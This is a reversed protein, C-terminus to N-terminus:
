RGGDASSGAEAGISGDGVERSELWTRWEAPELSLLNAFLRYAGPVGAPLQRFFALGTYMYLGEGLPAVLLSGHLPEEGPDSMALVPVFPDAWTHFFYLGREQIWGEFDADTIRNPDDLVPADPHLRTVPAREDTVRGHPRAMTVDYPAFGGEEFEYKNYQVLLTGGGRVWELLRANSARLDDRVEYARVGLVIVDLGEYDGAEVREPDLLEVEPGLQRIAEPVEDGSGMVYGIRRERDIRVPFEEVRISADEYFPIPDIHPYDILTLSRDWGTVDRSGSTPVPESTRDSPRAPAARAGLRHTRFDDDSRGTSADAGIEGDSVTSGTSRRVLRFSAGEREGVAELRVVASEPEATLVDGGSLSVRAEVEDPALSRVSVEVGPRGGTASGDGDPRTPWVVVHPSAEVSIRPVVRVPRWFEGRAKDVGRYRVESRATVTTAFGDSALSIPLRGTALPPDLPRARLRADSPWRYLDGVTDRALFYPETPDADSPVRVEFSWRALRDPPVTVPEWGGRVPAVARYFRSREAASRVVSDASLRRAEWGTPLDLEPPGARLPAEDGNWLEVHVRATGGRVWAEHETRFRTTIGRAALLAKEALRRKRSLVEELGATDPGVELVVSAAERIAGLARSLPDVAASPELVRLSDEAADVADVYTELREAVAARRAEPLGAALGTLTTDIGAFLPDDPSADTRDELALLRTFRPGPPQAAGFDQSRHQSRSEMAVQFPSRGLLPDYEGTAVLLSANEPDRWARRYLKIPRWPAVGRELHEPFRTPDAAAEFAERTVLGAAQHQGHGDAETGSFVSVIVHPRFTRVVWVVDSLLTDRPWHRFTEEASKSYGFDYARSFYQEAGDLRRAALLEGTRILGLGKGLEPGILNQGGEGRTLSLYAARVGRHRALESLLATDEDDPHAGVVLVRRVSPMQRLLLGVEASGGRVPLWEGPREQVALAAPLATPVLSLAAALTLTVLPFIAARRPASAPVPTELALM